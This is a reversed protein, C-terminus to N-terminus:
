EAEESVPARSRARSVEAGADHLLAAFIPVSLLCLAGMAFFVPVFDAPTLGATAHHPILFALLSPPSPSAWASRSSSPPTSLSTARSM